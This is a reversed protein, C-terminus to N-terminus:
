VEAASVPADPPTSNNAELDFEFKFDHGLERRMCTVVAHLVNEFLGMTAPNEVDNHDATHVGTRVLCTNWGYANGGAIDAQPNDGVMYINRPLVNESHVEAMWSSLVSDAYTYTAREPKGYVTRALERGTMAKYMAELGVRFTGQSMRPHPHETPCLLDGQSFYIPLSQKTAASGSALTHLRGGDSRLLDMIIQYDTAYDRSDSFVLIAELRTNRFDRPRASAREWPGFERYPAITQDWAVIDNPVVVDKFGYLEAIERCRCGEGGVVLVTTYHQALASM